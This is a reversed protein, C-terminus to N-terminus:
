VISIRFCMDLNVFWFWEIIIMIEYEMVLVLVEEEDIYYCGVIFVIEM